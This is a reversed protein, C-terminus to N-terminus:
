LVLYDAGRQREIIMRLITFLIWDLLLLISFRPISERLDVKEEVVKTFGRYREIIDYVIQPNFLILSARKFANRYKM